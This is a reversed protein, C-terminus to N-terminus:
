SAKAALLKRALPVIIELTTRQTLTPSRESSVVLQLRSRVPPRAIRRLVLQATHVSTEVARRSVLTSGAGDAVLDLITPVDDVEFAINPKCGPQGDRIGGAAPLTNPRTPM